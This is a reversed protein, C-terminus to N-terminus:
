EDITQKAFHVVLKGDYADQGNPTHTGTKIGDRAALCGCVQGDRGGGITVFLPTHRSGYPHFCYVEADAHAAVVANDGALSNNHLQDRNLCAM